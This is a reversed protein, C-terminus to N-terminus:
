WNTGMFAAIKWAGNEQIWYTVASEQLMNAGKVNYLVVYLKGPYAQTLHYLFNSVPDSSAPKKAPLYSGKPLSKPSYIAFENTVIDGPNAKATQKKAPPYEIADSLTKPPPAPREGIKPPTFAGNFLQTTPDVQRATVPANTAPPSQFGNDKAVFSKLQAPSAKDVYWAQLFARVATQIDTQGEIAPLLALLAAAILPARCKM